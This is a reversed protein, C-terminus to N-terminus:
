NGNKSKSVEECVVYPNLIIISDCDWGYLAFYLGDGHEHQEEESLHLEIADYEKAMKEFDPIHEHLEIDSKVEPMKLVDKCNRVHYVKAGDRLTFSFSNEENCVRFREDECWEKWGRKADIPSAWLGGYPKQFYPRNQPTDFKSIDFYTSGYHIYIQRKM